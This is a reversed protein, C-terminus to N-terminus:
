CRCTDLLITHKMATGVGCVTRLIFIDKVKEEFQKLVYKKQADAYHRLEIACM